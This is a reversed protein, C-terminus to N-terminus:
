RSREQQTSAEKTNNTNTVQKHRRTEGERQAFCEDREHLLLSGGVSYRERRVCSGQPGTARVKTIMM